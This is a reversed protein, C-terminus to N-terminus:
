AKNTSAILVPCRSGNVVNLWAAETTLLAKAMHFHWMEAMPTAWPQDWLVLMEADLMYGLFFVYM